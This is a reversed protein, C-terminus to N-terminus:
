CQGGELERTRVRCARGRAGAHHMRTIKGTFTAMSHDERTFIVRILGAETARILEEEDELMRASIAWGRCATRPNSCQDHCKPYLKIAKRYAAKSKAKHKLTSAHFFHANALTYTEEPSPSDLPTLLEIAGGFDRAGILSCAQKLTTSNSGM